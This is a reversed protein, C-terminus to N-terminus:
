DLLHTETTRSAVLYNFCCNFSVNTKSYSTGLICTCSWCHIIWTFRGPPHSFFSDSTQRRGHEIDFYNATSQFNETILFPMKSSCVLHKFVKCKHFLGLIRDRPMRLSLLSPTSQGVTPAAKTLYADVCQLTLSEIYEYTFLWIHSGSQSLCNWSWILPPTFTKTKKSTDFQHSDSPTGWFSSLKSSRFYWLRTANKTCSFPHVSRQQLHGCFWSASLWDGSLENLNSGCLSLCPLSGPSIPGRLHDVSKPSSARVM